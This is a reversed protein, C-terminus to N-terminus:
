KGKKNVTKTVDNNEKEGAVAAEGTATVEAQEVVEHDNTQETIEGQQYQEKKKASDVSGRFVVFQQWCFELVGNILMCTVLGILWGWFGISILSEEITPIYWRQFPYFPIYFAFALLMAIPVNKASKFTFKRNFTCNWIISLALGITDSVFTNLPQERIFMFPTEDTICLKLISSSILQIAGASCSILAYKLIRFLEAKSIKPKKTTESM